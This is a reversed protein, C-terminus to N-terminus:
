THPSLHFPLSFNFEQQCFTVYFTLSLDMGIAPPCQEACSHESDFNNENGGCGTYYFPMCKNDEASFLWRAHKETCESGGVEKPLNCSEIMKTKKLKGNM